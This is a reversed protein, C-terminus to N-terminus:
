ARIGNLLLEVARTALKEQEAHTYGQLASRLISTVMAYDQPSFDARCLGHQIATDILPQLISDRRQYIQVMAPDHRDIVRWYEMLATLYPINHIHDYILRIFGDEYQAHQRARSELRNLAQEMLALVLERRDSFNRYFTARGVQADDIILQLPANIGHMRFIRIAAALLEERNQTAREQRLSM